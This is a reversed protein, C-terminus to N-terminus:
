ARPFTKDYVDKIRTKKVSLYIQTAMIDENGLLEQLTKVDAGNLVMHAAFSNRILQPTVEKEIGAEQGYQKVLKWIGQRTLATGYFNLFLPVDKEETLLLADRANDIYNSIAIKAMSGLPIIRAAGHNGSCTIFGVVLNVDEPKLELLESVKMGTAYLLELIAKDRMAKVTDGDTADLLKEVEDMSLYDLTKREIKPSKIGETPDKECLGKSMLFKFYARIASLKRNITATSVGAKKLYLVYKVVEGNEAEVIDKKLYKEFARLDRGYALYTNESKKNKLQELFENLM